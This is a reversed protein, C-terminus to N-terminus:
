LNKGCVTKKLHLFIRMISIMCTCWRALKSVTRPAGAVLMKVRIRGPVTRTIGGNILKRIGKDIHNYTLAMSNNGKNETFVVKM